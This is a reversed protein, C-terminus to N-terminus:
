APIPSDKPRFHASPLVLALLGRIILTISMVFVSALGSADSLIAAYARAPCSSAVAAASAAASVRANKVSTGRM